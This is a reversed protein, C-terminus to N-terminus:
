PLPLDRYRAAAQRMQGTLDSPKLLRVLSVHSGVPCWQVRWLGLRLSKVSVGPIWLTRFLHGDACRVTADRGFSYGRRVAWVTGAAYGGAVAGLVLLRQTRKSMGM